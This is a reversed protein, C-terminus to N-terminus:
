FIFADGKKGRLVESIREKTVGQYADPVPEKGQAIADDRLKKVQDQLAM